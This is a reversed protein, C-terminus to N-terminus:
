STYVMKPSALMLECTGDGDLDCVASVTREPGIALPFGSCHLVETAREPLKGDPGRIFLFIDTKPDLAGSVRQVVLDERGDHNIDVRQQWTYDYWAHESVREGLLKKIAENEPKQEDVIPGSRFQESVYLHHAQSTGLMWNERNCSWTLRGPHFPLTPGALWESSDRQYLVAHNTSFVPIVVNTKEKQGPLWVVVPVM